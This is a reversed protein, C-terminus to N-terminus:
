IDLVKFSDHQHFLSEIPRVRAAAGSRCADRHTGSHTETREQADRQADRHTGIRGVRRGIRRTHKGRRGTHKGRRGNRKGRAERQADARTEFRWLVGCPTRAAAALKGDADTPTWLRRTRMRTCGMWARERVYSSECRLLRLPLHSSRRVLRRSLTDALM